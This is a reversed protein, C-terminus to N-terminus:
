ENITTVELIGRKVDIMYSKASEPLARTFKYGISIRHFKWDISKEGIDFDNFHVHISKKGGFLKDVDASNTSNWIVYGYQRASKTIPIIM